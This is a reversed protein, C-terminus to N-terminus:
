RRHLVLWGGHHEHVTFRRGSQRGLESLAPMDFGRVHGYADTPEDEFPVAIVVRGRALRVAEHVVDLGTAADLHELLHLMTVTEVSGDPLPVHAADCVLTELGLRRRRVVADLLRMSGASIDSAIAANRTRETLLLAFFGFCSGLDLVLGPPTLRMAHRYVPAFGAITSHTPDAAGPDHWCQHIRGITNDYFRLWSLMPDDVTSRVLGTFAHEFMDAGALWGPAFLEDTLLGTIDNDIQDPRLRHRLEIRSGHKALTFHETRVIPAPVDQAEARLVTLLSDAYRGPLAPALADIRPTASAGALAPNM